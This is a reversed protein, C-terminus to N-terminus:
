LRADGGALARGARRHARVLATLTERLYRLAMGPDGIRAAASRARSNEEPCKSGQDIDISM